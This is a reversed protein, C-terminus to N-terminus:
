GEIVQLAPSGPHRPSADGGVKGERKARDLDDARTVVEFDDNEAAEPRFWAAMELARHLPRDLHRTEVFIAM